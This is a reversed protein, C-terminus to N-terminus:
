RGGAPPKRRPPLSPPREGRRKAGALPAYELETGTDVARLLLGGRSM